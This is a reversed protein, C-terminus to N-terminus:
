ENSYGRTFKEIPDVKKLLRIGDVEEFRFLDGQKWGLHEIPLDADLKLYNPFLDWTYDFHIM